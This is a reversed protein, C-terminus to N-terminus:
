QSIYVRLWVSAPLLVCVCVCVVCVCVCVSRMCVRTSGGDQHKRQNREARGTVPRVTPPLAAADGAHHHVDGPGFAASEDSLLSM